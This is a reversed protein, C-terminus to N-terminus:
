KIGFLIYRGYYFSVICLYIYIVNMISYAVLKKTNKGIGVNGDINDRHTFISKM